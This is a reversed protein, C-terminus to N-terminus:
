EADNNGIFRCGLSELVGEMSGIRWSEDKKPDTLFGQESTTFVRSVALSKRGEKAQLLAKKAAEFSNEADVVEQLEGSEVYYKM